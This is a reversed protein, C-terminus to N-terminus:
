EERAGVFLAIIGIMGAYRFASGLVPELMTPSRWLEYWTEAIVIWGAFLMFIGVGCGTLAYTKSQAFEVTEAKRARWMRWVGISCLVGTVVKLSVIFISGLLIVAPNATSRGSTPAPDFTSMTTAAEVAGTTGAWDVVNGLAGLIAWAAVSLILLMKVIRLM